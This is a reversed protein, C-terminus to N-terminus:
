WFSVARQRPVLHWMRVAVCGENLSTVAALLGAVGGAVVTAVVAVTAVRVEHRHKSEVVSASTRLSLNEVIGGTLLLQPPM